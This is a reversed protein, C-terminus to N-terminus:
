FLHFKLLNSLKSPKFLVAYRTFYKRRCNHNNRFAISICQSSNSQEDKINHCLAISHKSFNIFMYNLLNVAHTQKIIKVKSTFFLLFFSHRNHRSNYRYVILKLMLKAIYELKLLVILYNFLKM